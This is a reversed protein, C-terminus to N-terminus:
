AANSAPKPNGTLEAAPFQGSLGWSELVNKHGHVTGAGTAVTLKRRRVDERWAAKASDAVANAVLTRREVEASVTPFQQLLAKMAKPKVGGNQVHIDFCLALGLESTFGLKGATKIAPSLYNNQAHRVQEAQVEPQSGFTAFM